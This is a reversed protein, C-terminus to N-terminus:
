FTQIGNMVWWRQSILGTKSNQITKVLVNEQFIKYSIEPNNQQKIKMWNENNKSAKSNSM